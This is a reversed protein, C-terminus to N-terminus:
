KDCFAPADDGADDDFCSNTSGCGRSLPATTLAILICAVIIKSM